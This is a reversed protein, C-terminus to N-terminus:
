ESEKNSYHIRSCMVVYKNNIVEISGNVGISDGLNCKSYIDNIDLCDDLSNDFLCTIYDISYDGKNNKYWRSVGLIIKLCDRNVLGNDDNEYKILSCEVIKGMLTVSNLM